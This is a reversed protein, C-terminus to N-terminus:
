RSRLEAIQEVAIKGDPSQSGIETLRKELSTTQAGAHLQRLRLAFLGAGKKGSPDEPREGLDLGSQRSVQEKGALFPRQALRRRFRYGRPTQRPLTVSLTQRVDEGKEVSLPSGVVCLALHEVHSSLLYIVPNIEMEGKSAVETLM